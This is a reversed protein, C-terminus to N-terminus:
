CKEHAAADSFKQAIAENDKECGMRTWVFIAYFFPIASFVLVPACPSGLLRFWMVHFCYAYLAWWGMWVTAKYPDQPAFAGTLFCVVLILEGLNMRFREWTAFPPHVDCRGWMDPMCIVCLLMLLFPWYSHVCKAITKSGKLPWVSVVMGLIYLTIFHPFADQDWPVFVKPLYIFPILLWGIYGTKDESTILTSLACLFLTGGIHAFMIPIHKLIPAYYLAWDSSGQLQMFSWQEAFFFLGLLAIAGWCCAAVIVGTATGPAHEKRRQLAIRLPEAAIAMLILMVVFFMQFITNGFDHSWNRGRVIDAFLNANVGVIFICLLRGVYVVMSSKSMMFSMGSTMYLYPLVWWLGFITNRHTYDEGGCHEFMVGVVACIRAFDLHWLRGKRERRDADESQGNSSEHPDSRTETHQASQSFGTWAVAALVLGFVVPVFARSFTTDEASDFTTGDCTTTQVHFLWDGSLTRLHAETPAGSNWSKAHNGAVHQGWQASALPKTEGVDDIAVLSFEDIGLLSFKRKPVHGSLCQSPLLILGARLAALMAM